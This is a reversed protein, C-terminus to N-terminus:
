PIQNLILEVSYKRWALSIEVDLPLKEKINNSSRQKNSKLMFKYIGIKIDQNNCSEEVSWM